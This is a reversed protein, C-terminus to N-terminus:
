MHYNNSIKQKLVLIHYLQIGLIIMLTFAILQYVTFVLFIQPEPRIFGLSSRIALYGLLFVRFLFGKPLDRKRLTMMLIGLLILGSIEYIQTPHRHISDGFNVGMSISTAKGFCCGQLFCGVRGVAIGVTLPIVLLDGYSTTLGRVYKYLRVALFGGLLGGTITRGSILPKISPFSSIIEPLNIIIMPLKAGVAGGIVAIAAIIIGENDDIGAKKKEYRFLMFGIFLASLVFIMYSPIGFLIPMVGWGEHYPHEIFM